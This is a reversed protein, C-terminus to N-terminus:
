TMPRRPTSSCTRAGVFPVFPNQSRRSHYISTTIYTHQTHRYCVQLLTNPITIRETGWRTRTLRARTGHSSSRGLWQTVGLSNKTPIRGGFDSRM